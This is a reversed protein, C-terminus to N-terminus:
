AILSVPTLILNCCKQAHSQKYLTLIRLAPATVDFIHMSMHFMYLRDSIERHDPKDRSIPCQNPILLSLGQYIPSVVTIQEVLALDFGVSGKTIGCREDVDLGLKKLREALTTPAPPNNGEAM